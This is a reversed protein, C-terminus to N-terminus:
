QLIFLLSYRLIEIIDTVMHMPADLSLIIVCSAFREVKIGHLNYLIIMEYYM